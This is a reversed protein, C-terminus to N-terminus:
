ESAKKVGVAAQTGVMTQEGTAIAPRYGLERWLMGVEELLLRGYQEALEPRWRMVPGSISISGVVMARHDFVPVAVSFAGVLRESLSVAYGRRRIEDLDRRLRDPSLPEGLATTKGIAGAIIREREEEPLFALIAKSSSGLLLSMERGLEVRQRIEQPSELSEIYVRHDGVRMSLNVTEQTLARLREMHPLARRRVDLQQLAVLGLEIVKFGLRYRRTETAAVYGHAELTTLLRHVVSKSYGLARSIESVGTSEHTALYDLLQAVREITELREKPIM